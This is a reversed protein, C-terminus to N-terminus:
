PKRSHFNKNLKEQINPLIQRSARLSLGTILIGMSLLLLIVITKKPIANSANSVMGSLFFILTSIASGINIKQIVKPNPFERALTLYYNLKYQTVGLISTDHPIYYEKGAKSTLKEGHLSQATECGHYEMLNAFRTEKTNLWITSTQGDDRTITLYVRTGYETEQPDVNTIVGYAKHTKTTEIKKRLTNWWNRIPDLKSNIDIKTATSKPTITQLASRTRFEDSEESEIVGLENLEETTEEAIEHPNAEVGIQTGDDQSM